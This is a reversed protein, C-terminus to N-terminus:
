CCGDTATPEPEPLPFKEEFAARMHAPVRASMWERKMVEADAELETLFKETEEDVPAAVPADTTTDAYTTDSM